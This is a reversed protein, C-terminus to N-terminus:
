NETSILVSVTAKLVPGDPGTAIGDIRDAGGKPTLRVSLAIGEQRKSYVPASRGADHQPSNM